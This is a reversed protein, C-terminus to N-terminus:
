VHQKLAVRTQWIAAEGFHGSLLICSVLIHQQWSVYPNTIAPTHPALRSSTGCVAICSHRTIATQAHWVATLMDGLKQSVSQSVCRNPSTM